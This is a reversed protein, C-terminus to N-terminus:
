KLQWTREDAGEIVALDCAAYLWAALDGLTRFERDAAFEPLRAELDHRLQQELRLRATHWGLARPACFDKEPNDGIYILQTPPINWIEMVAEYARGHPKRFEMGWADTVLIPAFLKGLKLAAAKNSQAAVSGDTILALRIGKSKLGQLLYSMGPLLQIVPKHSRYMEVLDGVNWRLGLEPYEAVLCDFANGRVGAEFGSQLFRLIREAACGDGGITAAVYRFGSLAYDRELYLTDDLDFVAGRVLEM